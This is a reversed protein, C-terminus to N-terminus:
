ARLVYSADRFGLATDRVPDPLMVRLQYRRCGLLVSMMCRWLAIAVPM